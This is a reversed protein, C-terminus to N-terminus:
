SAGDSIRGGGGGVKSSCKGTKMHRALADSRGFSSGCDFQCTFNKTKSHTVLHRSLDQRRLFRNHCVTCEHERPRTDTSSSSSSSPASYPSHRPRRQKSPALATTTPTSISSISETLFPETSSALSPHPTAPSPPSATYISFTNKYMGLPLQQQQADKSVGLNPTQSPTWESSSSDTPSYAGSCINVPVADIDSGYEHPLSDQNVLTLLDMEPTTTTSKSAFETDSTAKEISSCPGIQAVCAAAPCGVCWLKQSGAVESDPGATKSRATYDAADRAAMNASDLPKPLVDAYTFGFRFQHLFGVEFPDISSSNNSDFMLGQLVDWNEFEYIHEAMCARKIVPSSSCRQPPHILPAIFTFSVPCATKRM